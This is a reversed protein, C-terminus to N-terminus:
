RASTTSNTSASREPRLSPLRTPTRTGGEAGPLAWPRTPGKPEASLPAAPTKTPARVPTPMQVQEVLWAMTATKGSGTVGLLPHFRSRARVGEALTQIAQPQDGTPTFDSVVHFEPM